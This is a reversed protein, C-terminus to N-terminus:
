AAISWGFSSSGHEAPDAAVREVAQFVSLLTLLQITERPSLASRRIIQKVTCTGNLLHEIRYWQHGTLGLAEVITDKSEDLRLRATGTPDVHRELGKHAYGDLADRLFSALIPRVDQPAGLEGVHREQLVVRVNADSMCLSRVLRWRYVRRMAQRIDFAGLEGHMYLKDALGASGDDDDLVELNELTEATVLKSEILERALADDDTERNSTALVMLGRDLVVTVREWCSEVRVVATARQMCLDTITRLSTRQVLTDPQPKKAILRGFLGKPEAPACWIDTAAQLM